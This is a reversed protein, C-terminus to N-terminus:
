EIVRMLSDRIKELRVADSIKKRFLDTIYFSDMVRSGETAIKASGIDLNLDYLTKTVSYLFGVRDRATIDIITLADSTENDFEVTPTVIGPLTQASVFLGPEPPRFGGILAARLDICVREWAEEYACLNGEHDTIQFTDIMVGNKSTFVQARLINLKQSAITGATRYFLGYADYACVTLETFGKEPYHRYQLVLQEAPLRKVMNLHDLVKHTSTTLIYQDSMSALFDDLEKPSFLDDAADRIRASAAMLREREEDVAQASSELHNLTKLYLDQLLTARWQTWATPNV